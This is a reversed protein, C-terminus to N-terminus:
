RGGGVGGGSGGSSGGFGGGSFGGGSSGSSSAATITSQISTFSDGIQSGLDGLGGFGAFGGNSDLGFGSLPGADASTFGPGGPGGPGFDPGTGPAGPGPGGFLLDSRISWYILGFAVANDDLWEADALQPYAVVLQRVARGSLGFATAYVLYRDWMVLDLPGRDSFDSFDELYRALGLVKGGEQQGRDTLAMSAGYVEAFMAAFWGVILMLVGLVWAGPMTIAVYFAFGFTLAYLAISPLWRWDGGHTVTGTQNLEGYCAAKFKAIYQFGDRWDKATENMMALDFVPTMGLRRSVALLMDLLANESASLGLAARSDADTPLDYVAPLLVITSTKRVSRANDPNAGIMRALSAVDPQSLDIGRYLRAEGPYIAIAHKSVLSLMTAALKRNSLKKDSAGEASVIDYLAAAAAPSMDPPERWYELTGHYDARRRSRVALWLAWAILLLEVIIAIGWVLLRRTAVQRRQTNWATEEADQEALMKEKEDGSVHRVVGSTASSDFMGVIDFYMGGSFNKATWHLTGDADRSTTANGEYHLWAYSDDSTVGDPFALSGTFVTAPVTNASSFPEWMFTAVDDYDTVVGAFTMEVKFKLSDASETSPINWGVEVTKREPDSANATSALGATDYPQPDYTGSDVDAIYWHNAYTSNWTEETVEDPNRPSVQSYSEGTTLNTVAIDTINTLQNSDLEYDFYLQHWPNADDDDDGYTRRDLKYDITEVLKLDGNPQVTAQVDFSNYRMSSSSGTHGFPWMILFLLPGVVAAVIAAVLARRGLSARKDKKAM